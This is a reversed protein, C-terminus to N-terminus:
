SLGEPPSESTGQSHRGGKPQTQLGDWSGGSFATPVLTPDLPLPPLTEVQSAQFQFFVAPSKRPMTICLVAIKDTSAEQNTLLFL